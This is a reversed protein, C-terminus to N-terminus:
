TSKWLSVIATIWIAILVLLMAVLAIVFLLRGAKYALVYLRGPTM